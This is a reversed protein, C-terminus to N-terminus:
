ELALIALGTLGIATFLRLYPLWRGTAREPEGFPGHSTVAVDEVEPPPLVARLRAALWPAHRTFLERLATDDGGALNAILEDDDM